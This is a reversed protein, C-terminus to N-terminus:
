FVKRYVIFGSDDALQDYLARARANSAQTQWYVRDAGRERARDYVAEILVRGIGLNRFAPDTYLDSLYCAQNVSSTMEHFLFHVLGCVTGDVVAVLAHVDRAEGLCKNWTAENVEEPLAMDGSRGYFVNYEAWLRSWDARDLPVAPRVEIKSGPAIM